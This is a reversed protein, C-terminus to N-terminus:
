ERDMWIKRANREKFEPNAKDPVPTSALKNRVQWARIRELFDPQSNRWGQEGTFDWDICEALDALMAKDRPNMALFQCVLGSNLHVAVWFAGVGDQVDMTIGLGRYTFGDRDVIGTPTQMKFKAAEWKEGLTM